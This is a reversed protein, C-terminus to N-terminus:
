QIQRERTNNDVVVLQKHERLIDVVLPLKDDAPPTDDAPQLLAVVQPKNDRELSKPQRVDGDHDYVIFVDFM